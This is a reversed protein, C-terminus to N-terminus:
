EQQAYVKINAVSGKIHRPARKVAGYKTFGHVMLQYYMVVSGILILLLEYQTVLQM